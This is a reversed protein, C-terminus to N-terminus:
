FNVDRTTMITANAQPYYPDPAVTHDVQATLKIPTENTRGMELFYIGGFWQNESCGDNGFYNSIGYDNYAGNCGCAATNCGGANYYDGGGYTAGGNCACAGGQAASTSGTAPMSPMTKDTAPAGNMQAASDNKPTPMTA